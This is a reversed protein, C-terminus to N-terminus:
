DWRDFDYTRQLVAADGVLDHRALWKDIRGDARPVEDCRRFLTHPASANLGAPRLRGSM